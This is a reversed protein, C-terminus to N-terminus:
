SAKNREQIQKVSKALLGRSQVHFLSQEILQVSSVITWVASLATVLLVVGRLVPDPEALAWILAGGFNLLAAAGCVRAVIKFPRTVGEL